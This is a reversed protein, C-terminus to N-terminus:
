QIQMPGLNQKKTHLRHVLPGLVKTVSESKFTSYPKWNLVPRSVSSALSLNCLILGVSIFSFCQKVFVFCHSVLIPAVLCTYISCFMLIFPSALSFAPFCFLLFHMCYCLVCLFLLVHCVFVPLASVGLLAGEPPRDPFHGLLEQCCNDKKIILIMSGFRTFDSCM